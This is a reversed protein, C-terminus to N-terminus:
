GFGMQRAVQGFSQTMTDMANQTHLWDPSSRLQQKFQFVPTGSTLADQIQPNDITAPKELTSQYADLWPQAQTAVDVSPDIWPFMVKAQNRLTDTLQATTLSGDAMQTSLANLRDSAPVAQGWQQYLQRIQGQANSVQAQGQGAQQGLQVALPSQPNTMAAPKIFQEFVQSQTLSGSAIATAFKQIDPDTVSLLQGVDSNYLQVLQSAQDAVQQQQTATLPKGARDAEAQQTAWGLATQSHTSFYSTGQLDYQLENDGITGILYKFYVQRVEPDNIWQAGGTAVNLMQTFWAQYTPYGSTNISDLQSVSGANAMLSGQNNVMHNWQDFTITTPPPVNHVMQGQDFGYFSKVGDGLDYVLYYLDTAGPGGGQVRYLVGGSPATVDANAPVDLQDPATTNTDPTTTSGASRGNGLSSGGGVSPVSVAM